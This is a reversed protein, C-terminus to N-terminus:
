ILLPWIIIETVIIRPNPSQRRRKVTLPRSALLRIMLMSAGAQATKQSKIQAGLNMSEKIQAGLNVSNM